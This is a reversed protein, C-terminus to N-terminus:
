KILLSGTIRLKKGTIVSMSSGANIIQPINLICEGNIAPDIIIQANGSLIVPPITNNSWNSAVNWYGNGSFTYTTIATNCMAYNLNEWIKTCLTFPVETFDTSAEGMRIVVLGLSPAISIIQGNKGIAAYMDAPAAPAFSGPIVFQSTPVMYSSKGNLWWLYGYSNNIAQSSNISQQFYASDHLLTDTGWICKNQYLLGFRAM